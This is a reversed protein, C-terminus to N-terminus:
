TVSVTAYGLAAVVIVVVAALAIVAAVLLGTAGAIAAWGWRTVREARRVEERYGDEYGRQENM